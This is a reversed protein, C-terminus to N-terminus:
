AFSSIDRGNVAEQQNNVGVLEVSWEVTKYSSLNLWNVRIWAGIEASMVCAPDDMSVSNLSIFVYQQTGCVYHLFQLVLLRVIKGEAKTYKNLLSSLTFGGQCGMYFQEQPLHAIM